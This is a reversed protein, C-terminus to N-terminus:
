YLMKRYVSPMSCGCAIMSEGNRSPKKIRRGYGHRGTPFNEARITERSWDSASLKWGM